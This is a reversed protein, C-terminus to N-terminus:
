FFKGSKVDTTSELVTESERDEERGTYQM